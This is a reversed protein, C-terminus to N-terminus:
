VCWLRQRRISAGHAKGCLGAATKEKIEGAARTTSFM